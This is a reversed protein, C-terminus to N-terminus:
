SLDGTGHEAAPAIPASRHDFDTQVQQAFSPVSMAFCATAVLAISKAFKMLIEKAVRFLM